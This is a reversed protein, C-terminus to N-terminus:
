YVAGSGSLCPQSAPDCKTHAVNRSSRACTKTIHRGAESMILMFGLWSGSHLCPGFGLSRMDRNRWIRRPHNSPVIFVLYSLVRLCSSMVLLCSVFVLVRGVGCSACSAVCARVYLCSSVSCSVRCVSFHSTMSTSHSREIQKLGQGPLFSTIHSHYTQCPKSWSRRACYSRAWAAVCSARPCTFSSSHNSYGHCLQGSASFKIAVHSACGNAVGKAEQDGAHESLIHVTNEVPGRTM